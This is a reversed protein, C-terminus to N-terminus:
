KIIDMELITDRVTIVFLLLFFFFLLLLLLLCIECVYPRQDELGTAGFNQKDPLM